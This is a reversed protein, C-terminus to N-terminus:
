VQEVYMDVLPHKGTEFEIFRGNELIYERDPSIVKYWHEPNDQTKPKKLGRSAWYRNKNLFLPMEKTIYKQLYFGVKVYGDPEIKKANTFGLTYSPVEFVDHGAQKLYKGTRSSIARIVDGAYGDILAHFHISLKDKHFEPVILYQFVGKRKRQNKLWNSMKTKCRDIDQRDDRFTFTVFLSFNNCLVYDTIAKRTRRISRETDTETYINQSRSSSLLGSLELNEQLKLYPKNPIYIRVFGPYFTARAHVLYQAESQPINLFQRDNSVHEDM